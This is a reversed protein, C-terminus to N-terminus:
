WKIHTNVQVSGCAAPFGQELAQVVEEQEEKIPRTAQLVTGWEDGVAKKVGQCM